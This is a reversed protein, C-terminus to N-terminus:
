VIGYIKEAIQLGNLAAGKLINDSVIWMLWMHPDNLDRHVRGVYVPDQGSAGRPTPYEQPERQPVLKLGDGNRLAAMLDIEAVNKDLTVWVAESHANLSPVRV